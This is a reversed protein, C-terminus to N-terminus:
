EIKAVVRYYKAETTYQGWNYLNTQTGDSSCYVVTSTTANLNYNLTQFTYSTDSWTVADTSEQLIWTINVTGVYGGGTVNIRAYWAQNPIVQITTAWNTSDISYQIEGTITTVQVYGPGMIYSIVLAYVLLSFGMLLLILIESPLVVKHHLNKM